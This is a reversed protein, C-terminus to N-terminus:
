YCGWVPKGQELLTVNKSCPFNTKIQSIILNINHKHISNTNLNKIFYTLFTTTKNNKTYM